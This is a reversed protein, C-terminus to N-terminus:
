TSWFQVSVSFDKRFRILYFQFWITNVVERNIQFITFVIQNKNSKILNRFSEETLIVIESFFFSLTNLFFFERKDRGNTKIRQKDKTYFKVSPRMCLNNNKTFLTFIPTYLRKSRMFLVKPVLFSRCYYYIFLFLYYYIYIYLSLHIIFYIIIKFADNQEHLKKWKSSFTFFEEM